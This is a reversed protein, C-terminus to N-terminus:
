RDPLSLVQRGSKGKLVVTGAKIEVVKMDCVIDGKKCIVTMGSQDQIIALPSAEKDLIGNLTLACKPKSAAALQELKEQDARMNARALILQRELDKMENTTQSM